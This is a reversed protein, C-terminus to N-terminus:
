SPSASSGWRKVEIAAPMVPCADSCVGCAVCLDANVHPVSATRPMNHWIATERTSTIAGLIPCSKQCSMCQEGKRWGVCQERDVVAASGLGLERAEEPTPTHLADTPCVEACLNCHMTCHQPREDLMPTWLGSEALAATSPRLAGTPCASYCAGCRVCLETLREEDTSPPRLIEQGAAVKPLLLVTALSAGTVGLLALGERRDPDYPAVVPAPTSPRFAIARAPCNDSCHLCTICESSSSAFAESADIARTPCERACKGCSTCAEGDVGRSVIALRSVLGLMGGLPCLSSCWFRKAVINLGVVIALPLISLVALAGLAETSLYAGVAQGMADTGLRPMVYEQLPRLVITIPDFMMPSTTGFVAALIVVGFTAYKGYRLWSPLGASKKRSRAPMIDLITGLPCVWGCWARGLVLAVALTILGLVAYSAWVRSAIVVTAGVLPDLRSFLQSASWGLGILPAAVSLVVFLALSGLQVARRVWEGKFTRKKSTV